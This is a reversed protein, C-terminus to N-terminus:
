FFIRFSCTHRLETIFLYVSLIIRWTLNPYRMEQHARTPLPSELSVPLAHGVNHHFLTKNQTIINLNSSM